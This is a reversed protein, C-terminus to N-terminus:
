VDELAGYMVKVTRRLSQLLKMSEEVRVPADTLAWFERKGHSSGNDGTLMLVSRIQACVDASSRIIWTLSARVGEDDSRQGHLCNNQRLDRQQQNHLLRSLEYLEVLVPELEFQAATVDDLFDHLFRTTSAIERQASATATAAAASSAAPLDPTEM